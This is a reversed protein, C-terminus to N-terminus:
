AVYGFFLMYYAKEKVLESSGAESVHVDGILSRIM